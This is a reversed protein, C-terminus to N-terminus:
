KLFSLTFQIQLEAEAMTKVFYKPSQYDESHKTLVELTKGRLGNFSTWPKFIFISLLEKISFAVVAIFLTAFLSITVNM